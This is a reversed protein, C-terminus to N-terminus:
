GDGVVLYGTQGRFTKTGHISCYFPYDGPAAVILAQPGEELLDEEIIPFAGDAIPVVNHPNVGNNVFVIETCPDVRFWRTEYQNGRISVEVRAQGRLDIIKDDPRTIETEPAPPFTAPDAAPNGSCDLEIAADGATADAPDSEVVQTVVNIEIPDDAACGLLALSVAGLAIARLCRRTSTM